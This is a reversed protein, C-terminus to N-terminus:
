RGYLNTDSGPEGPHQERTNGVYIFTEKEFRRALNWSGAGSDGVSVTGLARFGFRWVQMRAYHCKALVPSSLWNVSQAEMSLATRDRGYQLIPQIQETASSISETLSPRKANDSNGSSGQLAPEDKSPPLSFFGWLM